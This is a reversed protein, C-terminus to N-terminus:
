QVFSRQRKGKEAEEFQSAKMLSVLSLSSPAPFFFCGSFAWQLTRTASESRHKALHVSVVDIMIKSIYCLGNCSGSIRYTYDRQDSDTEQQVLLLMSVCFCLQLLQLLAGVPRCVVYLIYTRVDMHSM